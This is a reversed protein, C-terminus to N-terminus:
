NRPSNPVYADAKIVVTKEDLLEQSTVAFGLVMLSLIDTLTGTNFDYHLALKKNKSVLEIDAEDSSISSFRSFSTDVEEGMHNVRVDLHKEQQKVRRNIYTLLSNM